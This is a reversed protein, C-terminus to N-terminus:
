CLFLLFPHPEWCALRSTALARERGARVRLWSGHRHQGREVRWVCRLLRRRSHAFEGTEAKDASLTRHQTKRAMEISFRLSLLYSTLLRPAVNREMVAESM